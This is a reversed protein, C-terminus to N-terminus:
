EGSLNHVKRYSAVFDFFGQILYLYLAKSTKGVDTLIILDM